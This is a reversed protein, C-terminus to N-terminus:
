ILQLTGIFNYGKRLEKEPISLKDSLAKWARTTKVSDLFSNEITLSVKQKSPIAEFTVTIKESDYQM